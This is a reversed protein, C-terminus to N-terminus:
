AMVSGPHGTLRAPFLFLRTSASPSRAKVSNLCLRMASKKTKEISSPTESCIVLPKALGNMVLKRSMGCYAEVKPALWALASMESDCTESVSQMRSMGKKRFRKPILFTISIAM